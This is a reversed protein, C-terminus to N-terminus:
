KEEQDVVQQFEGKSVVRIKRVRWDEARPDTPKYSGRWVHLRVVPSGSGVDIFINAQRIGPMYKGEQDICVLQSSDDEQLLVDCWPSAEGTDQVMQAVPNEKEAASRRLHHVTHWIGFSTAVTLLTLSSAVFLAYKFTVRPSNTRTKPEEM